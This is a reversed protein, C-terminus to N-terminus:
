LINLSFAAFSNVWKYKSFSGHAGDHMINFGIAAVIVGMIVCEIISLIVGPNFFVLHTYLFTFSSLLIGAKLFLPGNGTSAKRKEDFYGHVRNKLESYFSQSVQQFKPMAM